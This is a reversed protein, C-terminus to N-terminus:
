AINRVISARNDDIKKVWDTMISYCEDRKNSLGQLNVMDIQQQNSLSTIMNNLSDIAPQLESGKTTTLMGGPWIGGDSTPGPNTSPFPAANATKLADNVAFLQTNDSGYVTAYTKDDSSTGFKQKVNILENVANNLYSMQDTQWQIMDMYNFLSEDIADARNVQVVLMATEVDMSWVDISAASSTPNVASM